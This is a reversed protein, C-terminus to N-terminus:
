FPSPSFHNNLLIFTSLVFGDNFNSYELFGLEPGKDELFSLFSMLFHYFMMSPELLPHKRGLDTFYEHRTVSVNQAQMKKKM